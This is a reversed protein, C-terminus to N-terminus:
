RAETRLCSLESELLHQRSPATVVWLLVWAAVFQLSTGNFAMLCCPVRIYRVPYLKCSNIPFGPAAAGGTKILLDNIYQRLELQLSHTAVCNAGAYWCVVHHQALLGWHLIFNCV